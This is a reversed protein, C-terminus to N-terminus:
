NSKYKTWGNAGNNISFIYVSSDANPGYQLGSCHCMNRILNNVIWLSAAGNDGTYVFNPWLKNIIMSCDCDSCDSELVKEYVSGDEINRLLYAPNGSVNQKRFITCCKMQYCVNNGRAYQYTPM